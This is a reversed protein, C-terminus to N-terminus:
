KHNRLSKCVKYSTLQYIFFLRIKKFTSFRYKIHMVVPLNLVFTQLTQTHVTRSVQVTLLFPLPQPLPLSILPVKVQFVKFLSLQLSIFVERQQSLSEQLSQWWPCQISDHLLSCPHSPLHIPPSLTCRSLLHPDSTEM